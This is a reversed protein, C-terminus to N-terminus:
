IRFTSHPIRFLGERARGLPPLPPGRENRMGCESNQMVKKGGGPHVPLRLLPLIKSHDRPEASTKLMELRGQAKLRDYILEWGCPTKPDVECQGQRAGQCPGILMEKPCFYLPCLGREGGAASAACVCLEQGGAGRPFRGGGLDPLAPVVRQGPLRGLASGSKARFSLLIRSRFAQRIRILLSLEDM